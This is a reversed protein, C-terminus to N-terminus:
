EGIKTSEKHVIKGDAGLLVITAGDGLLADDTVLLSVQGDAGLPKGGGVVSSSPDQSQLRIDATLDETGGTVTIRCRLNLWQVSKVKPSAAKKTRGPEVVLEPIVCEQPSVGGHAYEVAKHFASIGPAVAVIRTQNWTWPVTPVSVQSEGKIISARAGKTEILYAPLDTKPLGGPLLLWGHDTIIRVRKWGHDFLARLQETLKAVEQDLHHILEGQLDHGRSDIQGFELWGRQNAPDGLNDPTLETYGTEALLKRLRSQNLHDTTGIIQPSLAETLESDGRLSGVVPSVCPKCTATSSPLASFKWTLEGRMGGDTVAGRVEEALDYRLGDVFLLVEGAAADTVTTARFPSYEERKALMHFHEAARELWPLYLSNVVDRVIEFHRRASVQTLAKRALTDVMYGHVTYERACQDLTAGSLTVESKEALLTITELVVALEAEGLSAWVWNRRPRHHKELERIRLRAEQLSLGALAVLASLLEQEEHENEDPWPEKNFLLKNSPKARRLLEPVKTYRGPSECFRRWTLQWSSTEQLGLLEAAKLEGDRSPDFGYRERCRSCFAQFRNEGWLSQLGAPDGLWELVERAEDEVLLRDFDDWALRSHSLESLRTIALKSAAARLSNRTREDKAVDLDLGDKSVFFAELTWDKGNKQTWTLGRFQLEILPQLAKPCDEGLRLTQRSVKPLYLIPIVSTPLDVPETRAVICKLWIAPGSRQSPAYDGLRFLQPLRSMLQEVIPAWQGDSDSWLLCAPSAENAPDYDSAADLLCRELVELVTPSQRQKM